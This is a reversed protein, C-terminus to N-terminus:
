LSSSGRNGEDVEVFRADRGDLFRRLFELSDLSRTSSLLALM